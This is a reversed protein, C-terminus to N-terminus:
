VSSRATQWRSFLNQLESQSVSIWQSWASDLGHPYGLLNGISNNVALEIDETIPSSADFTDAISCVRSRELGFLTNFEWDPFFPGYASAHLCEKIVSFDPALLMLDLLWFLPGVRRIIFLKFAM